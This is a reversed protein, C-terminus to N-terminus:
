YIETHSQVQFIISMILLIIHLEMMSCQLFVSMSTKAMYLCIFHTIYKMQTKFKDPIMMYKPIMVRVDFEDKNLEKSPAWWM